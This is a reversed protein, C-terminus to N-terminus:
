APDADPPIGGFTQDLPEETGYISSTELAQEAPVTDPVPLPAPETPLSRQRTKKPLKAEVTRTYEASQVEVSYAGVVPDSGSLIQSGLLRKAIEVAAAQGIRPHLGKDCDILVKIQIYGAKKM